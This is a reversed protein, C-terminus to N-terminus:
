HLRWHTFLFRQGAGDPRGEGRRAASGQAPRSSERRRTGPPDPDGEECETRTDQGAAAEEAGTRKKESWDTRLSAKRELEGLRRGPPMIEGATHRDPRRAPRYPQCGRRHMM